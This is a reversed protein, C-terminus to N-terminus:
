TSLKWLSCSSSAVVTAESSDKKEAASTLEKGRSELAQFCCANHCNRIEWPSGQVQILYVYQYVQMGNHKM